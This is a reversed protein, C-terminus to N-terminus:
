VKRNSVSCLFCGLKTHDLKSFRKYKFKIFCHGIVGFNRLFCNSILIVWFFIRAWAFIITIFTMWFRSQEPYLVYSSRVWSARLYEPRRIIKKHVNLKRGTDLPSTSTVTVIVVMLTSRLIIHLQFKSKLGKPLMPQIFM